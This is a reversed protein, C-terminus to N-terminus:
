GGQSSLCMKEDSLINCLEVTFLYEYTQAHTELSNAGLRFSLCYVALRLTVTVTFPGLFRM